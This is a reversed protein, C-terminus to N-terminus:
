ATVTTAYRPQVTALTLVVSDRPQDHNMHLGESSMAGVRRLGPSCRSVQLIELLQVANGLAVVLKSTTVSIKHSKLFQSSLQLSAVNKFITTLAFLGGSCSFCTEDIPRKPLISLKVLRRPGVCPASCFHPGSTDGFSTFNRSM